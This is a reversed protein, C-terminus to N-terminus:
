DVRCTPTIWSLHLTFEVQTDITKRLRHTSQVNPHTYNEETTPKLPCVRHPKTPSNCNAGTQIPKPGRGKISKPSRPHGHPYAPSSPGSLIDPARRLEKRPPQGLTLSEFSTFTHRPRQNILLSFYFIAVLGGGWDTSQPNQCNTNSLPM